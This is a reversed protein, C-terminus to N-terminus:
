PYNESPWNTRLIAKNPKDALWNIVFHNPTSQGSGEVRNRTTTFPTVPM